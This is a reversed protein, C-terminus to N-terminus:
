SQRESPLAGNRVADTLYEDSLVFDDYTKYDTKLTDKYNNVLLSIGGM